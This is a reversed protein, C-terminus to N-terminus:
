RGSSDGFRLLAALNEYLDRNKECKGAVSSGLEAILEAGTFLFFGSIV